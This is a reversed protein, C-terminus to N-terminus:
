LGKEVLELRRRLNAVPVLPSSEPEGPLYSTLFEISTKLLDMDSDTLGLGRGARIFLGNLAAIDIGAEIMSARVNADTQPYAPYTVPSIDFLECEILTRETLSSTEDSSSNWEDQVACFGFSNQSVDRRRITEVYNSAWDPPTIEYYLGHVDERLTLTGSTNRGLVIDPNHNWLARIDAERITKSFAGPLIKERFSGLDDSWQNFIAGYGSIIPKGDDTQRVEMDNAPFFRREIKGKFSNSTKLEPAEKGADKLHASLHNWVGKRDEDPINAGGMGGNLVGCGSQCAKMNAVGIKGSSDVMHHPFKYASKTDPNGDPDVWAYMLRLQAATVGKPIRRQMAAADWSSDTTDTHHVAIAKREEM